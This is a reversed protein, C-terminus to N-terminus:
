DLVEGRLLRTLPAVARVLAGVSTIPAPKWRLFDTLLSELDAPAALARGAQDLEGGTLHVPGALLDGDRYLRWATGNTYILNPLDRQREWQQRDHGTFRSPNLPHGPAKVEVYGSIAGGVSVGYDPRVRREADRVEDHFVAPAGLHDGAARLLAELPSGSRRRGTAPVPWSSGANRV